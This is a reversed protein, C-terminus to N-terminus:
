PIKLKAQLEKIKAQAQMVYHSDNGGRSKRIFLIFEDVAERLRGKKEYVFVPERDTVVFMQSGYLNKHIIIDIIKIKNM